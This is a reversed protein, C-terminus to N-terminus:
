AVQLNMVLNMVDWLHGRVQALHIWALGETELEKFDM